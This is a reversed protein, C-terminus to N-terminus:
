RVEGANSESTAFTTAGGGARAAGEAPLGLADEVGGDGEGGRVPRWPEHLSAGALRREEAERLGGKPPLVGSAMEGCAAAGPVVTPMLLDRTRTIPHPFM